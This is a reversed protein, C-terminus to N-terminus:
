KYLLAATPPPLEGAEWGSSRSTGAGAWGARLDPRVLMRAESRLRAKLRHAQDFRRGKKAETEGGLLPFPVLETSNTM